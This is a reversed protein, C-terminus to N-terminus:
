PEHYWQVYMAELMLHAKRLNGSCQATIKDALFQPLDISEKLACSKLIEVIQSDTPAPVRVLMCRSRIPAIIKSTVNCCMIIRLNDMYKEMTRRLASQANRSLSDAENLVVVKFRIQSKADM